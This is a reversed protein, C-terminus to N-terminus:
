AVVITGPKITVQNNAPIDAMAGNLTLGVIDVVGPSAEFAIQSLKLYSLGAGLGLDAIYINIAAAVQGWVTQQVYGAAVTVLMSVNATVVTPSIVAFQIGAARTANVAAQANTILSSPPMGTGDDVTVYIFGSQPAGAVTQNETITNQAGLQLSTIAYSIAGLTGKALSALFLVFRIKLAADSEANAGGSMAAANNVYDVGSIATALRTVGGAVVNAATGANASVVPVSLSAVGAPILYGNLGASWATNTADLSVNFTQSGDASQVQAGFPILASNTASYRSFTVQGVANSSSLRYVGYDNVFSDVDTGVSTALRSVQLVVLVLGQLWVAVAANAEVVARLVSGVSFDILASANAQIAAAQNSVLTAISKLNLTAM